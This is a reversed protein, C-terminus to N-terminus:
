NELRKVKFTFCFYGIKYQSCLLLLQHSSQSSDAICLYPSRFLCELYFSSLWLCVTILHLIKNVFFVSVACNMVEVHVLQDSVSAYCHCINTNKFLMKM